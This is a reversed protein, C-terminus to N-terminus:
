PLLSHRYEKPSQSMHKKFLKSFHCTDEYGVMEAIKKISYEPHEKMLIAAKHLRIKILYHIPSQGTEEKFIKSIYIPNLYMNGAIADLSIKENYHNEMYDMITQVVHHKRHSTFAPQSATPSAPEKYARIIYLLIQSLYLRMMDYKGPFHQEKEALMHFFITTIHNQLTADTELVPPFDPFIIKGPPMDTFQVDCLGLALITMPNAHNTVIHAHETGPNIILLNGGSVDYPTGDVIYRGEGNYIYLIKMYDHIYPYGSETRVYKIAFLFTPNLGNPTIDSAHMIFEKRLIRYFVHNVYGSVANGAVLAISYNQWYRLVHDYSKCSYYSFIIICLFMHEYLYNCTKM